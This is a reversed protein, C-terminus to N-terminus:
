VAIVRPFFSTIRTPLLRAKAMATFFSWVCFRYVFRITRSLVSHCKMNTGPRPDQASAAQVLSSHRQPQSRKENYQGRDKSSSRAHYHAGAWCSMGDTANGPRDM